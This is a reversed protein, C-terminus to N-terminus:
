RLILVVLALIGTVLAAIIGGGVRMVGGYLQDMRDTVEDIKKETRSQAQEDLERWGELRIIRNEHNDVQAKLDEM